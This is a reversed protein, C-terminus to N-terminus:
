ACGQGGTAHANQPWPHDQEDDSDAGDTEPPRLEGAPVRRCAALSQKLAEIANEGL